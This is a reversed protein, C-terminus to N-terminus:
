KKQIKIQNTHFDKISLYSLHFNLLSEESIKIKPDSIYGMLYNFSKDFFDDKFGSEKLLDYQLQAVEKQDTYILCYIKYKLIYDINPISKMISFLECSKEIKGLSLNKDLYHKALKNNFEGKDNKVIFNRILNLDDNKILWKIKFSIFKNIDINKEPPFANTLLLKKYINKADNSLNIKNIKEFLKTIKEGDSLEWM